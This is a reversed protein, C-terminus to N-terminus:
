GTNEVYTSTIGEAINESHRLQRYEGRIHLHDEVPKSLSKEIGTNKQASLKFFASLNPNDPVIVNISDICGIYQQFSDLLKTSIHVTINWVPNRISVSKINLQHLPRILIPNIGNNGAVVPNGRCILNSVPLAKSHGDNHRIVM